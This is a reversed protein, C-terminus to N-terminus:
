FSELAVRKLLNTDVAIYLYNGDSFMKGKIVTPTNNAPENQITTSLTNIVLDLSSNSFLNEVSIQQTISNGSTNTEVIFVSDLPLSNAEPLETIHKAENAM